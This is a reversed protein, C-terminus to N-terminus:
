LHNTHTVARYAKMWPWVLMEMPSLRFFRMLNLFFLGYYRFQYERGSGLDMSHGFNGCVEIWSMLQESMRRVGDTNIDLGHSSFVGGDMGLFRVNVHALVLFMRRLHLMDLYHMLRDWDLVEAKAALVMQWDIVQRLGLGGTIVHNFAHTTLLVVNLVDPLVSVDYGGITQRVDSGSGDFEIATIRKLRRYYPPYQLKQVAFHLEVELKGLRYTSHLMTKDVLKAGWEVLLGNAREFQGPVVYVDIDGPMRHAPQPWFAACTQGKMVAYRIGQGDLRRALEAVQADMWRNHKEIAMLNGICKLRSANDVPMVIGPIDYTLGDLAQKRAMPQLSEFHVEDMTRVGHLARSVNKLFYQFEKNLAM